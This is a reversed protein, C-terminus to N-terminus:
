KLSNREDMRYKYVFPYDIVSPHLNTLTMTDSGKIALTRVGGYQNSKNKSQQYCPPLKVM